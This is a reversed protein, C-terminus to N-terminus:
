LHFPNATQILSLGPWLVFVSPKCESVFPFSFFLVPPSPPTCLWVVFVPPLHTLCNIFFTHCDFFVLFLSPPPPCRPLPSLSLSLTPSIRKSVEQNITAFWLGSSPESYVDRDSELQQESGTEQAATSSSRVIPRTMFTKSSESITPASTPSRWPQGCLQM